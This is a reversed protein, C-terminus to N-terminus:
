VRDSLHPAFVSAPDSIVGLIKDDTLMGMVVGNYSIQFAEYRPIIVWDGVKCWPGEPFRDEGTLTKGKYAQPGVACVLGAVSQYKDNSQSTEPLYLTASTGDDRKVTTLEEPRIYIKVAIMYGAPRLDFPKGTMQKFQKQVLSKAETEEHPEIFSIVESAKPM